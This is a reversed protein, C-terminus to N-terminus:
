TLLQVPIGMAECCRIKLQADYSMGAAPKVEAVIREGAERWRFDAVFVAFQVPKGTAHDVTLLPIRVQKELQDIHGREQRKLLRVWWKAESKSQFSDFDMRGCAVCAAPKKGESWYACGRCIHVAIARKAIDSRNISSAFGKWGGPKGGSKM